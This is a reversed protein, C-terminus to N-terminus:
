PFLVEMATYTAIAFMALTAIDFFFELWYSESLWDLLKYIRRGQVTADLEGMYLYWMATKYLIAMGVQLCVGVLFLVSVRYLVGALRLAQTANENSLLVVPAGIGYTLFWFRLNRAFEQYPAYYGSEKRTSTEQRTPVDPKSCLARFEPATLIKIKLQRELQERRGHLIFGRQDDTVFIERQAAAHTGLIQADRLQRRQGPSLNERKGPPPFAGNSIIQLIAEFNEADSQSALVAHNLPSEGFLILELACDVAGLRIDSQDLERETTSIITIHFGSARADRILEAANALNTDITVTKM